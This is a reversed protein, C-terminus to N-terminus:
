TGGIMSWDIQGNRKIFGLRLLKILRNWLSKSSLKVRSGLEALSVRPNADLVRAILIDTEDITM